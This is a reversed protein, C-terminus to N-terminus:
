PALLTCTLTFYFATLSSSNLYIDYACIKVFFFVKFRTYIMGCDVADSSPIVEEEESNRHMCPVCYFCCFPPSKHTLGQFIACHYISLVSIGLSCSFATGPCLSLWKLEGGGCGDPHSSSSGMLQLFSTTSAIFTSAVTSCRRLMPRSVQVTNQVHQTAM